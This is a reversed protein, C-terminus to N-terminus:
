AHQAEAGLTPKKYFIILTNFTSQIMFYGHLTMKFGLITLKLGDKPWFPGFFMPVGMYRRGNNESTKNREKKKKRREGSWVKEGM